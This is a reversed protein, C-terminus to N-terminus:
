ANIRVGAPDFFTPKVVQARAIARGAEYVKLESGILRRGGRLLALAIPEGSLVGLGASTIWGDTPQNSNDIRLHSGVLYPPNQASASNGARGSAVPELGVLQLRDPRINEPLSLSRRGIYDRSKSAAAKGWGVDDPVTTGDTDSGIHLFGKELRMRLLADMGFPQLGFSQGVELLVEWMSQAATCPISIEYTLEGTFSVRCIRAPLGFLHVERLTLHRFGDPSLDTDTIVRALLARAKPGALALTAWQETVPVIAVRLHPWECQHWEDLWARVRAANTATTTLLVRESTLPVVTGDDFISGNERLMLGYRIRGPTLSTITNLYFRDLFELADPGHVEIKGLPSADFLGVATRVALAERQGAQERTEDKKLYVVPRQWGAFDQQVAGNAVHWEHLPPYRKPKFHADSERGVLAGLTVPVFPPRLTTHGLESSPKAQLKAVVALSAATSTKGQDAAMGVTTYRKVHEIAMYRERVALELDAITVDHLLDVWQRGTRGVPSIRPGTRVSELAAGVIEIPDLQRVPRVAGSSEDYALKGGAQAFLHLSPNWGGSVVLADCAYKREASLSLGDATLLGVTVSRLGSFGETDIPIARSLVPISLAKIRQRIESSIESRSDTIAVVNVGAGKLDQAVEYATDNNTALLVQHGPAVAYRRCYQQAAGALIIGPRDNHSFILPQEIAGTALVVRNARVIWLRERPVRASVRSDASSDRVRELLTVVNHDYYGVATTRRLIRVDPLAELQDEQRAVWAAGSLTGVQIDQWLARGGLRIDQDALIVRGGSRGADLAAELGAVGGGVVLLDCHANQVEYRDPDRGTPARGLGAMRRIIGEYAHWSPRIFTKNYFGAAWLTSVADLVRGADWNLSPWGAHSHAELGATLEICPARSLPISHAGCSLTLLGNPEEVGCAFIGRPRHFKFSRAVTRIGNALLASALTDGAYGAYSRGNFRFAISRLRDIQGGHSLRCPGRQAMGNM